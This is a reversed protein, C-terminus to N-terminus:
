AMGEALTGTAGGLVSLLGSNQGPHGMFLCLASHWSYDHERSPQNFCLNRLRDKLKQGPPRPHLGALHPFQECTPSLTVCCLAWGRAGIGCDQTVM